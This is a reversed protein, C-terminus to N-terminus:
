EVEQLTMEFDDERTKYVRVIKYLTGDYRVKDPTGIQQKCATYDAWSVIALISVKVASRAAEYFEDRGVSRIEALCEFFQVNEKPFGDADRSEVTTGLSIVENRM